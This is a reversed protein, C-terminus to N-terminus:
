ETEILDLELRCIHTQNDRDHHLQTTNTPATLRLVSKATAIPETGHRGFDPQNAERSLCNADSGRKIAISFPDVTEPNATAAASILSASVILITFKLLEM